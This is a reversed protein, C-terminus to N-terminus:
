AIYKRLIQGSADDVTTKDASIYNASTQGHTCRTLM